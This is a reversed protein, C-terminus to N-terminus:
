DAFVRAYIRTNELSGDEARDYSRLIGELEFGCREAVRQSRENRDDIPIQIRKMGLHSAMLDAIANLAETMYGQGTLSTRIWYWLEVKPVSMDLRSTACTGVFTDTGKLFLNFEFAKGNLYHRRAKRLHGKRGEVSSEYRAWRIWPMLMERSEVVAAHIEAADRVRPARITLRESEFQEPLHPAPESM